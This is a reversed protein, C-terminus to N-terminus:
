ANNGSSFNNSYPTATGGAVNSSAGFSSNPGSAIGASTGTSTSSGSGAAAGFSSNVAVSGGNTIGGIAGSGSVQSVSNTPVPVALVSTLALVIMFPISKVM